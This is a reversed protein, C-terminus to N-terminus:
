PTPRAFAATPSAVPIRVRGGQAEDVGSGGFAAELYPAYTEIDPTMVVVDRPELGPDADFLALLQDRLM